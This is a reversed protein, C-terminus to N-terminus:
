ADKPVRYLRRLEGDPQLAVLYGDRVQIPSLGARQAALIAAAVAERFQLEIQPLDHEITLM